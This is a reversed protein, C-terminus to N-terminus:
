NPRKERLRLTIDLTPETPSAKIETDESRIPEFYGLQNLRMMSLDWLTGNFIGGERLLLTHRIAEDTIVHNGIFHISRVTFQRDEDINITLNLLKKEDDYDQM